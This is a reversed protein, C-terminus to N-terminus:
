GRSDLHDWKVKKVKLVKIELRDLHEQIEPHDPIVLNAQRASTEMQVLTVQSGLNGPFAMQDQLERFDM